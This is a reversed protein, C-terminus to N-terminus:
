RAPALPTLRYGWCVTAPPAAAERKPGIDIREGDSSVRTALAADGAPEIALGAATAPDLIRVFAGAAEVQGQARYRSGIAGAISQIRCAVDFIVEPRPGATAAASASWHSRGSMGVLFVISAGGDRAEVSLQRWAPSPPWDDAATGEVSELLPVAGGPTIVLVRHAYRDGCRVFEVAVGRGAAGLAEITVPAPDSM